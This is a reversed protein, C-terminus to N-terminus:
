RKDSESHIEDSIRYSPANDWSDRERNIYEEVDIDKWFDKAVGRFETVDHLEKKEDDEIMGKLEEVLQKCEENTLYPLLQRIQLYTNTLM